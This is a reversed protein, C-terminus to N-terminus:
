VANEVRKVTGCPLALFSHKIFAWRRLKFAAPRSFLSFGEPYSGHDRIAAESRRPPDRLASVGEDDSMASPVM